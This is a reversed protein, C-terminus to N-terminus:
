LFILKDFFKAEAFNKTRNNYGKGAPMFVAEAPSGTEFNTM